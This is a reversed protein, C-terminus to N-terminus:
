RYMWPPAFGYQQQQQYPQMMQMSSAQDQECVGTVHMQTEFLEPNMARIANLVDASNQHGPTLSNQPDIGLGTFGCLALAHFVATTMQNNEELSGGTVCIQFDPINPFQDFM